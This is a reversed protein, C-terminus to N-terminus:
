EDDEKSEAAAEAAKDAAIEAKKAKAQKKLMKEEAEKAKFEAKRAKEEAKQLKEDVKEIKEKALDTKDTLKDIKEKAKEAKKKEKETATEDVQAKIESLKIETEFEELKKKAKDAKAQAKEVKADAADNREGMAEAKKAAREAQDQARLQKSNAKLEKIEEPSLSSDYIGKYETIEKKSKSMIVLYAIAVLVLVASLLQSARFPGWWLSDTRLQEIWFRGFGYGILYLAFIGGRIKMRKRVLMLVIFVLVNWVSEYFFTAYYWSGGIDVGMPFWHWKANAILGGHAEQNVFNGWRGIAQAIVLSPAAIDMMTGVRVRQWKYFIFAALVGGIVAGYIALGGNWIAFVSWFNGSYLGWESAVYYIRAGLIAMPIAILMFDLVMEARYGRRKAEIVGLVVGVLLACAIIIGYWHIDVGFASFAIKDM